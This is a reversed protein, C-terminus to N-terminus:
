DEEEKEWYQNLIEKDEFADFLCTEGFRLLNLEKLMNYQGETIEHIKFERIMEGISDYWLFENTGFYLHFGDSWKEDKFPPNDKEKQAFYKQMEIFANFEDETFVKMGEVYFEDAYDTCYTILYYKM